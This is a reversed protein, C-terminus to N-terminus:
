SHLQLTKRNEPCLDTLFGNFVHLLCTKNAMASFFIQSLGFHQQVTCTNHISRSRNRLHTTEPFKRGGEDGFTPLFVSHILFSISIVAQQTIQFFRQYLNIQLM